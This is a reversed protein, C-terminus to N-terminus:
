KIKMNFSIFVNMCKLIFHEVNAKQTHKRNQKTKNKKIAM